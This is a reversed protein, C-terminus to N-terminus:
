PLPMKLKGSRDLKLGCQVRFSGHPRPPKVLEFELVRQGGETKIRGIPVPEGVEKSYYVCPLSAVAEFLIKCREDNYGDAAGQPLTTGHIQSIHVKIARKMAEAVLYVSYYLLRLDRNFSNAPSQGNVEKHFTQSPGIAGDSRPAELFYGLCPRSGILVTIAELRNSTHKLENNLERFFEIDRRVIDHYVKAAKLKQKAFWRWLFKREEASIPRIDTLALLIEHASDVYRSFRALLEKYPGLPEENLHPSEDKKDEAVVIMQVLGALAQVVDSFVNDFIDAPHRLVYHEHSKTEMGGLMAALEPAFGLKGSLQFKSEALHAV